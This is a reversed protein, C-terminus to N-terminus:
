ESITEEMDPVSGNSAELMRKTYKSDIYREFLTKIISFLPAGLLMGLFGFMSGFLIISFIIWFPSLGISDGLIKPGLINGDFQQLAIIIVLFWLAKIPDVFLLFVFGVGGGIFPGFYPIFNTIGVLVSILLPFPTKAILVILFCLIGIIISDVLKGVFFKSFVKHSFTFTELIEKAAKNPFLALIVKKSNEAGSEKNAILYISVVIAVLINLIGFALDKTISILNPILNSLMVTLQNFTKPLNETLTKNVYEPDIYYTSENFTFNFHNLQDMFIELRPQFQNGFELMSSVLQPIIIALLLIVITFLILYSFFISLFRVYKPKLPKTGFKIKSFISKEFAVVLSNMFYAVLMGLLIPSLIKIVNSLFNKTDPWSATAKYFFLCTLFVIIAYVSITTYKKNWIVRM